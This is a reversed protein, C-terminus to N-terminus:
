YLQVTLRRKSKFVAHHYGLLHTGDTSPRSIQLFVPVSTSHSKSIIVKNWAYSHKLDVAPYLYGRGRGRSLLVCIFTPNHSLNPTELLRHVRMGGSVESVSKKDVTLDASGMGQVVPSMPSIHVAYLISYKNDGSPDTSYQIWCVKKKRWRQGNDLTHCKKSGGINDTIWPTASEHM